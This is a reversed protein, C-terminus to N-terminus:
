RQRTHSQLGAAVEQIHAAHLRLVMRECHPLREFMNLRRELQGEDAIRRVRLAVDRLYAVCAIGADDYRAGDIAFSVALQFRVAEGVNVGGFDAARMGGQNFSHAAARQHQVAVRRFVGFYGAVGADGESGIFELGLQRLHESQTLSFAGLVAGARHVANPLAIGPVCHRVRVLLQQSSQGRCVWASPFGPLIYKHRGNESKVSQPSRDIRIIMARRVDVRNPMATLRYEIQVTRAARYLEALVVSERPTLDPVNKGDQCAVQGFHALCPPLYM